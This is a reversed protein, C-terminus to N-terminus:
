DRIEDVLGWALATPADIWEGSLAFQLARDRGIRRPVSVTGGAGPVLGMAVEPLRFRADSTAVVRGAFAALETGAGVAAGHVYATVRPAIRALVAGANAACRIAHATVPDSVTGFEALDGGACFAPGAGRLEVQLAPDAEAVALADLLAHRLAASYANRAQPRDLTITLVDGARELRVPPGDDPKPAPRETEDLWRRHEPGSQLLGYVWSEAVLGDDVDLQDSIRLLEVLAAGAHPNSTMPGM